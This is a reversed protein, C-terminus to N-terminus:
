LLILLLSIVAVGAALLVLLIYGFLYLKTMNNIKKRDEERIGWKRYDYYKEIKSQLERTNKLRMYLTIQFIIFIFFLLVCFAILSVIIWSRINNKGLTLFTIAFYVLLTYYVVQLQFNKMFKINDQSAGLISLDLKMDMENYEKNENM